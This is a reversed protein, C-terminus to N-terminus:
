YINWGKFEKVQKRPNEEADADENKLKIKSLNKKEMFAMAFAIVWRLHLPCNNETYINLGSKHEIKLHSAIAIFTSFHYLVNAVTPFSLPFLVLQLYCKHRSSQDVAQADYGQM